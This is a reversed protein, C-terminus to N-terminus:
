VGLETVTLSGLRPLEGPAVAVDTGPVTLSYNAVGGVTFVLAGLQARLVSKGLRTGNFWGRIAAEVATKTEGFTRGEAAAVAIAIDVTKAAPALVGVDVAIERRIQFYDKLKALLAGDPIGSQTAVVVDVTGAGRSRALVAAAAVEPFSLAGQEYFAANAGNPLRRFTDLVRVRLEEDTEGDTGGSFPAPNTCATIGAPAVAMTLISGAAVNGGTGAAAAKASVDVTTAGAPLTKAELTEFRVLGATMCVTGKPIELGATQAAAVSFRIHGGACAATRRTLGRLGAHRDLFEGAATQPFCQREVWEGQVNLAYIQAAVAYLRASLDGSQGVTQGTEGAFATAMEGYIEEIKKM